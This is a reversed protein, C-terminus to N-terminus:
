GGLLKSWRSFSDTLGEGIVGPIVGVGELCYGAEITLDVFTEDRQVEGLKEAEGRLLFFGNLDGGHASLLVPEFSEIRGDAQLKGYFEVVKQFLQMAQQERGVVARNWGIFLIRDAM